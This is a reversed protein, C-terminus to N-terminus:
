FDSNQERACDVCFGRPMEEGCNPCENESPDIDEVSVGDPLNFDSV